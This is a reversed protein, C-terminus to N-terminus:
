INAEDDEDIDEDDEEVDEEDGPSYNYDDAAMVATFDGYSLDYFEKTPTLEQTQKKM